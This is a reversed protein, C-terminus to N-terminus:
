ARAARIPFALCHGLGNGDQREDGQNDYNNFLALGWLSVGYAIIIYGSYGAVALAGRPKAGIM